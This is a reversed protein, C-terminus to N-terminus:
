PSAAAGDGRARRHATAARVLAGAVAFTALVGVVGAVGTALGPDEMGRTSYDAFPGDALPHPQEATDLGRDAAVRELGDPESSALRSVGFGLVLAVALGTAV